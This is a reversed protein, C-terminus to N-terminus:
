EPVKRRKSAHQGEFLEDCGGFFEDGTFINIIPEGFDDLEMETWSKTAVPSIKLHSINTVCTIFFVVKSLHDSTVEFVM